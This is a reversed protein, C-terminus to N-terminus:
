TYNDAHWKADAQLIEYYNFSCRRVQLMMDIKWSPPWPTPFRSGLEPKTVANTWFPSYSRAYWIEIVDVDVTSILSRGTPSFPRGGYQFKIEQKSKSRHTTMPMHNHTLTGFKTEILRDGTSNHRWISKELHRVYLGFAVESKQKISQMRKLLHFDIQMGFKSSIDSVVASIFSSGTESFPRGGYRFRVESKPKSRHKTWPIHNQKLRGFKTSILRNM